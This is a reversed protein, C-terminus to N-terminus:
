AMEVSFYRIDTGLKSDKLLECWQNRSLISVGQCLMLVNIIQGERFSM